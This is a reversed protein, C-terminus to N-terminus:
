AVDRSADDAEFDPGLDDDVDPRFGDSPPTSNGLMMPAGLIYHGPLGDKQGLVEAVFLEDVSGVGLTYGLIFRVEPMLAETEPEGWSSASNAVVKFGDRGNEAKKLRIVCMRNSDYSVVQRAGRLPYPQLGARLGASDFAEGILDRTLSSRSWGTSGFSPDQDLAVDIRHGREGYTERIEYAVADLQALTSALLIM